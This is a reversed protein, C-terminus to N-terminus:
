SVCHGPYVAVKYVTNRSVSRCQICVVCHGLIDHSGPLATVRTVHVFIHTEPNVTVRAKGLGSFICHGMFCLSRSNM